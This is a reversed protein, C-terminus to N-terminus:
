LEQLLVGWCFPIASFFFLCMRSTALAKSKAYLTGFYKHSSTTKIAEYKILRTDDLTKSKLIGRSIKLFYKGRVRTDARKGSITNPQVVKTGSCLCIPLSSGCSM